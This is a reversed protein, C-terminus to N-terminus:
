DRWSPRSFTLTDSAAPLRESRFCFGAPETRVNEPAGRTRRAYCSPTYLRYRIAGPTTPLQKVGYLHYLRVRRARIENYYSGSLSLLREAAGGCVGAGACGARDPASRDPDGPVGCEARPSPRSRSLYLASPGLRAHSRATDCSAHTDRSSFLSFLASLSLSLLCVCVSSLHSLALSRSLSCFLDASVCNRM